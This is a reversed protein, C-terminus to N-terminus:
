TEYEKYFLKLKLYFYSFENKTVHQKNEVQCQFAEPSIIIEETITQGDLSQATTTITGLRRRKKGPEYSPTTAGSTAQHGLMELAQHVNFSDDEVDIPSDRDDMSNEQKMEAVAVILESASYEGNDFVVEEREQTPIDHSQVLEGKTLSGSSTASSQSSVGPAGPASGNTSNGVTSISIQPLRRYHSSAHMRHGGRERPSPSSSSPDQGFIIDNGRQPVYPKGMGSTECCSPCLSEIAQGLTIASYGNAFLLNVVHSLSNEDKLNLLLYM